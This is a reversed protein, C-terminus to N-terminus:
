SRAKFRTRAVDHIEIAEELAFGLRGSSRAGEAVVVSTALELVASDMTFILYRADSCRDWGQGAATAFLQKAKLLDPVVGVGDRFFEGLANMADCSGLAAAEEYLQLAVRSDKAVGPSYGATPIASCDSSCEVTAGSQETAEAEALAIRESDLTGVQFCNGLWFLSEGKEESGALRFYHDAM